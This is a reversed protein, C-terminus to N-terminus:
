ILLRQCPSKSGAQYHRWTELAQIAFVVSVPNVHPSLKGNRRGFLFGGDIRGDDSTAQFTALSNAEDRAATENVPIRHAAFLRARLLQAYVDSRIFEPAIEISQLSICRMSEVYVEAHNAEGLRPLIGELFYCSPHLRDMRDHACTVGELLRSRVAVSADVFELYADRLAKDGTIEAVDWWARASKLQYCGPSRSWNAARPFPTKLPLTLIPHFDHEARFDGLMGHAARVAIDLLHEDGIERWVAILGRIIIGTDFFYALDSSQEFPFARLGGDWVTTLFDATQRARVLYEEDGTEHFLWVLASAAYGTIETSVPKYKGTESDYYRAFGGSPAQIGSHLLWRGARALSYAASM